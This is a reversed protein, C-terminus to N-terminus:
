GIKSKLGVYVSLDREGYGYITDYHKNLANEIRGYIEINKSIKYSGGFRLSNISSLRVNTPPFIGYDLDPRENTHLYGLFIHAKSSIQYGLNFTIKHRPIYNPATQTRSEKASIYSYSTAIELKETPNARLEYEFGESKQAGDNVKQFQTLGLSRTVIVNSLYTQFFTVKTQLKNNLWGKVIGMDATVINEPTLNPNGIKEPHTQYLDMILPYRQASGLSSFFTTNEMISFDIAAWFSPKPTFLRHKIIRGGLNLKLANTIDIDFNGMIHNMHVSYFGKNPVLAIEREHAALLTIELSKEPKLVTQYHFKQTSGDTVYDSGEFQTIMRTQTHGLYIDNTIPLTPIKFSNNLSILNRSITNVNQSRVPFPKSQNTDASDNMNLTTENARMALRFNYYPNVAAKLTALGTFQRTYDSLLNGHAQNVSSGSGMRQGSFATYYKVNDQNAKSGLTLLAAKNNGGELTSFFSQAGTGDKSKMLIAGSGARLDHRLARAGSIVQITETDRASEDSFNASGGVGPDNLPMGDLSVFTNYSPMGRMEVKTLGGSLGFTTVYVGPMHQLSDTTQYSQSQEISQSTAQNLNPLLEYKKTLSSAKVIVKDLTKQDGWACIQSSM